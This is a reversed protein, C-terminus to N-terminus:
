PLTRTRSPRSIPAIAIGPASAPTTSTFTTGSRAVSYANAASSSHIAHVSARLASRSSRGASRPQAARAYATGMGRVLGSSRSSCGRGHSPKAAATPATTSAVATTTGSRSTAGSMESPRM